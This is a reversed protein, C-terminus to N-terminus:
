QNIKSQTLTNNHHKIIIHHKIIFYENQEEMKTQTLTKNIKNVLEINM